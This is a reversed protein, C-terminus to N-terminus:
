EEIPTIIVPVVRCFGGGNPWRHLMELRAEAASPYAFKMLGGGFNVIGSARQKELKPANPERWEIIHRIMAKAQSYTMLNTGTPSFIHPNEPTGAVKQYKIGGDPSFDDPLKWSLFRTVMKEIETTMM